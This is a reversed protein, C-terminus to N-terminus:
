KGRGECCSYFSEADSEMDENGGSGTIKMQACSGTEIEVDEDEDVDTEVGFEIDSLSMNLLACEWQSMEDVDVDVDFDEMLELGLNETPTSISSMTSKESNENETATSISSATSTGEGELCGLEHEDGRHPSDWMMRLREAAERGLTDLGESRNKVVARPAKVKQYPEDDYIDSYLSETDADYDEQNAAEDNVYKGNKDLILYDELIPQPFSIFPDSYKSTNMATNLEAAITNKLLNRRERDRPSTQDTTTPPPLHFTTFIPKPRASTFYRQQHM